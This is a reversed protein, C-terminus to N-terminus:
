LSYGHCGGQYGNIIAEIVFLRSLRGLLWKYCGRYRIAKVVERVAM